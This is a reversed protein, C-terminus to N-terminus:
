KKCPTFFLTRDTMQGCEAKIANSLPLLSPFHAQPFIIRSEPLYQIILQTKVVGLFVLSLREVWQLIGVVGM